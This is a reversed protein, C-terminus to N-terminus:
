RPKAAFSTLMRDRSSELHARMAAEAAIPDSSTVADVIRGHETLTTDGLEGAYSLRFLHLHCHTRQFADTVTSNGAITLVLEHLRTDHSTLPQYDEYRSERPAVPCTALEERLATAQEDTIRVAARGAAFPELLLRLEYLERVELEGLLPTTRYGKLPLKDVLGDSDLRALAERVPTPSVELQRAIDEINIRIGPAIANNMILTKLQLYVDDTLVSRRPIRLLAEGHPHAPALKM